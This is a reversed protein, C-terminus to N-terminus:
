ENKFSIYYELIDKPEKVWWESKILSSIINDNFRYKIIRAPNGVVVAYNPVDKTVVSNAGIIAGHGIKVNALIVAYAGIWVDSGIHVPSVNFSEKETYDVIGWSKSYFVSSTSLRSVPHINPGILVNQGISCYNGISFCNDGINTNQGIFTYMGIETKRGIRVNSELRIKGDIIQNSSKCIM